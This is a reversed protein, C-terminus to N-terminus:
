SEETDLCTLCTNGRTLRGCGTGCFHLPAFYERALKVAQRFGTESYDVDRGALHDVIMWRGSGDRRIYGVLPEPDPAHEVGEGWGILRKTGPEVSRVVIKM